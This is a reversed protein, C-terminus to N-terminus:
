SAPRLLTRLPWLLSHWLLAPALACPGVTGEAVAAVGSDSLLMESRKPIRHLSLSPSFFFLTALFLSLFFFARQDCYKASANEGGGTGGGAGATHSAMSERLVSLFPVVDDHALLPARSM